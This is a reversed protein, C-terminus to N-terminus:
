LLPVCSVDMGRCLPFVQEFIRRVTGQRAEEMETNREGNKGREMM